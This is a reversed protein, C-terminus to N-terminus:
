QGALLKMFLVAYDRVASENEACYHEWEAAKDFPEDYISLDVREGQKLRACVHPWTLQPKKLYSEHIMSNLRAMDRDTLEALLICSHTELCRKTTPQRSAGKDKGKGTCTYPCKEAFKTDGCAM